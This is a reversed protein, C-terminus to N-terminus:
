GGTYTPTLFRAFSSFSRGTRGSSSSDIALSWSGTIEFRGFQSSGNLSGYNSNSTNGFASGIFSNSWEDLAIWEHDTGYDLETGIQDANNGIRITSEVIKM